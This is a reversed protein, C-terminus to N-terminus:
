GLSSFDTGIALVTLRENLEFSQCYNVRFGWVELLAPKAQGERRDSALKPKSQARVLLGFTRHIGSMAVEAVAPVPSFVASPESVEPFQTCGHKM